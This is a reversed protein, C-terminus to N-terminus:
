CRTTSCLLMMSRCAMAIARAAHQTAGKCWMVWCLGGAVAQVNELKVSSTLMAAQRSSLWVRWITKSKVQGTKVPPVPM